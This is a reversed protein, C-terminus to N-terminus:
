ALVTTSIVAGPDHVAQLRKQEVTWELATRNLNTESEIYMDSQIIKANKSDDIRYIPGNHSRFGTSQSAVMIALKSGIM